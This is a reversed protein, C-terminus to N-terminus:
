RKSLMKYLEPNQNALNVREAYSFKKFQEKTVGQQKTHNTPQNSNNLLLANMSAGIKDLTEDDDVNLYNALETPLGFEGLKKSVKEQKEKQVLQNERDELAKLREDLAKEADSKEVPKYKILEDNVTKLKASYDTRVKDTESQVFKQVVELQEASMNLDKLEM